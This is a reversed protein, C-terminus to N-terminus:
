GGLKNGSWGLPHKGDGTAGSRLDRDTNRWLRGTLDDFEGLLLTIRHASAFHEHLEFCVRWAGCEVFRRGLDHQLLTRHRM